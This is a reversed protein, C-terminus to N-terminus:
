QRLNIFAGAKMSLHDVYMSLLANSLKAARVRFNLFSNHNPHQVSQVSHVHLTGGIIRSLGSSCATTGCTGAHM